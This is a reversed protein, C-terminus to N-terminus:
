KKDSYVLFSLMFTLFFFSYMDIPSAASDGIADNVMTDM